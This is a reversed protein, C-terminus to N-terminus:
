GSIAGAGMSLGRCRRPLPVVTRTNTRTAFDRPLYEKLAVVRDLKIDDALYTIGFGGQGLVERVQYEELRTGARLANIYEM